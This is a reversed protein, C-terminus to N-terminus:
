TGEGKRHLMLLQALTDRLASRPVVADVFGHELQFEASQFGEPLTQGITQQIVRPGAFGILAGPEALTVDGLSAFSATVGGTTPDTLVSVYLLGAEGHRSIAAATKAMQMLSLIGEQMRAGGSASILILPLAHATAYEALRTIKEGVAAGMSGMLFRGDLAGVACAYGGIRGTGTLVAEGLGTRERAKALKERYEPFALPDASVCGAYLEEFSDRDLLMRLRRRAGIPFHHGCLPCVYLNKAVEARAMSRYCGPCTVGQDYPVYRDRLEKMAMLRDRRRTFANSM